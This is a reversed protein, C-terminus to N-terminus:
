LDESGDDAGANLEQVKIQGILESAVGNSIPEGDDVLALRGRLCLFWLQRGTAPKEYTL